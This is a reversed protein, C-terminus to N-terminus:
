SATVAQLWRSVTTFQCGHARLDDILGPLAVVTARQISHLLIVDGAGLNEVVHNTIDVPNRLEWDRSDNTWNVTIMGRADAQRLVEANYAGYPPRFVRARVGAGALAATTDNFQQAVADATLNSLNKHDFSHQGVEHGEAVARRVIDPNAQVLSGLYFFTAPAQKIRLIDLVKPDLDRHPGDDFTLLCVMSGGRALDRPGATFSQGPALFQPYSQAASAALDIPQGVFESSSPPQSQLSRTTSPSRAAQTRGGPATGSAQQSVGAPVALAGGQQPDGVQALADALPVAGAPPTQGNAVFQTSFYRQGTSPNVSPIAYIQGPEARVGMGTSTVGVGDANSAGFPNTSPAGNMQVASVATTPTQIPTAPEVARCSALLPLFALASLSWLWRPTRPAM